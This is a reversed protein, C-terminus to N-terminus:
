PQTRGLETLRRDFEEKLARSVDDGFRSSSFTVRTRGGEEASEFTIRVMAFLESRADIRAESVRLDGGMVVYDLGNLAHRCTAVCTDLSADYDAHISSVDFAWDEGPDQLRWQNAANNHERM